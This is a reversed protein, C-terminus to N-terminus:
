RIVERMWERVCTVTEEEGYEVEGPACGDVGRVAYFGDAGSLGPRDSRDYICEVIILMNIFISLLRIPGRRTRSDRLTRHKNTASTLM